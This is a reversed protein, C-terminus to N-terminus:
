VELKGVLIAVDVPLSLIYDPRGPNRRLGKVNFGNILCGLRDMVDIDEDYVFAQQCAGVCRKNVKKCINCVLTDPSWDHCNFPM